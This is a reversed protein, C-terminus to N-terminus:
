LKCNRRRCWRSSMDEPSKKVTAASTSTLLGDLGTQGTLVLCAPPVVNLNELKETNGTDLSQVLLALPITESSAQALTALGELPRVVRVM